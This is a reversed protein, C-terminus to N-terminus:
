MCAYVCMYAHWNESLVMIHLATATCAAQLEALPQPRVLELQRHLQAGSCWVLKEETDHWAVFCAIILVYAICGLGYAFCGHLM